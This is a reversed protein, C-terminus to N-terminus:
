LDSSKRESDYPKLVFLSGCNRPDLDEQGKGQLCVNYLTGLDKLWIDSLHEEWKNKLWM